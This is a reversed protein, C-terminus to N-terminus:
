KSGFRQRMKSIPLVNTGDDYTASVIKLLGKKCVVIPIGDELKWIKGPNRIEFKVDELVLAKWVRIIKNDLTTYAGFYPYGSARILNYIDEAYNNWDIENDKPDRWISYTAMSHDQRKPVVKNFEVMKMLQVASKCYLESIIKIAGKLYVENNITAENQLIIDGGDTNESAYLVSVGIRNDGKLISTALPCFGRYKPLLSDHFVIIKDSLLMNLELPIFYQWGIAVIGTLNYRRIYRDFNIRLNNWDVFPIDVEECYKQIKLGFNEAVNWEPYSCILGVSDNKNETLEKLVSYGKETNLCWLFKHM